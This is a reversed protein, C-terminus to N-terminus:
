ISALKEILGVEVYECLKDITYFASGVVDRASSIDAYSVMYNYLTEFVKFEKAQKKTKISLRAYKLIISNCMLISRAASLPNTQINSTSSRFISKEDIDNNIDVCTNYVDIPRLCLNKKRYNDYAYDAIQWSWKMIDKIDLTESNIAQFLTRNKVIPNQKRYVLVDMRIRKSRLDDTNIIATEDM